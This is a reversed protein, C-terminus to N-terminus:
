CPWDMVLLRVLTISSGRSLFYTNKELKSSAATIPDNKRYIKIDFISELGESLEANTLLRIADKQQQEDNTSM